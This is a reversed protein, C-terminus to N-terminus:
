KCKGLCADRDGACKAPTAGSKKAGILCAAYAIQCSQVCKSPLAIGADVTPPPAAADVTTTTGADTKAGADKNIKVTATSTTTATTAPEEAAAESAGTDPEEAAAEPVPTEETTAPAPEEDKKFMKCAVLAGVLVVLGGFGFRQKMM